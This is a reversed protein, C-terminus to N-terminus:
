IYAVQLTLEFYDANKEGMPQTRVALMRLTFIENM